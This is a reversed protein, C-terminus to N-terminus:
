AHDHEDWDSGLGIKVSVIGDLMEFDVRTEPVLEGFMEQLMARMFMSWAVGMEHRVIFCHVSGSITHSSAMGIATMYEELTEIARKLDYKGKMLVVAEKFSLLAKSALGHIQGADSGLVIESLLKKPVPILDLKEAYRDWDLWRRLVNNLMTNPSVNLRAADSKLEAVVHDPIRFSVTKTGDKQEFHPKSKLM